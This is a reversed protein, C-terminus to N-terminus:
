NTAQRNDNENFSGSAKIPTAKNPTSKKPTTKKPTARKAPTANSRTRRKTTKIVPTTTNTDCDSESASSNSVSSSAVTVRAQPASIYRRQKSKTPAAVSKTATRKAAARNKTRNSRLCRAPPSDILSYSQDSANSDSESASDAQAAFNLLKKHSELGHVTSYSIQGSSSTSTSQEPVENETERVQEHYTTLIRDMRKAVSTVSIEKKM